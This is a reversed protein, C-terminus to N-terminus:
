ELRKLSHYSKSLLQTLTQWYQSFIIDIALFFFYLCLSLQDLEDYQLWMTGALHQFALYHIYSVTHFFFLDSSCRSGERIKVRSNTCLSFSFVADHVFEMPVFLQICRSVSCKIYLKEKIIEQSKLEFIILPSTMWNQETRPLSIPLLDSEKFEKENRIM